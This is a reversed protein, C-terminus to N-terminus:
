EIHRTSGGVPSFQASPTAKKNNRDQVWRSHEGKDTLARYKDKLQVQTRHRLVNGHKQDYRLLDSWKMKNGAKNDNHRFEPKEALELLRVIEERDWHRTKKRGLVASSPNPSIGKTTSASKSRSIEGHSDVKSLLRAEWSDKNETEPDTLYADSDDDIVQKRKRSVPPPPLDDGGEFEELTPIAEHSSSIELTGEVGAGDHSQTGNEWENEMEIDMPPRDEHDAGPPSVMRTKGKDKKPQPVGADSPLSSQSDQGNSKEGPIDIRIFADKYWKRTSIKQKQLAVAKSGVYITKLQEQRDEALMDYLFSLPPGIDQLRQRLLLIINKLFDEYMELLLVRDKALDVALSILPTVNMDQLAEAHPITDSNCREQVSLMNIEAPQVDKTTALTLTLTILYLFTETTQNDFDSLLGPHEQLFLEYYDKLAQRCRNLDPELTMIGHVFTALDSRDKFPQDLGYKLMLDRRLFHFGHEPDMGQKANEVKTWHVNLEAAELQIQLPSNMEAFSQLYIHAQAEYTGFFIEQDDFDSDEM